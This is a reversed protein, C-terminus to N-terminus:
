GVMWVPASAGRHVESTFIFEEELDNLDDWGQEYLDNRESRVLDEKLQLWAQVQPRRNAALHSLLVALGEGYARAVCGEITEDDDDDDDDFDDDSGEDILAIDISSVRHVSSTHDQLAVSGAVEALARKRSQRGGRPTALRDALGPPLHPGPTLGLPTDYHSFDSGLPPLQMQESSAALQDLFLQRNAEPEPETTQTDGSSQRSAALASKSASKPLAGTQPTRADGGNTGSLPTVVGTAAATGATTGEPPPSDRGEADAASSNAERAQKAAAAASAPPPAPAPPPPPAKAALKSIASNELWGALQARKDEPLGAQLRELMTNSAVADLAGRRQKMMEIRWQMDSVNGQLNNVFSKHRQRALCAAAAKRSARRDKAAQEDDKSPSEASAGMM